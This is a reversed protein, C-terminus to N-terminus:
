FILLDSLQVGRGIKAGCVDRTLGDDSGRITQDDSGYEM